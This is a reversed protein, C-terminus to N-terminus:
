QLEEMSNIQRYSLSTRESNEVRVRDAIEFLTRSHVIFDRGYKKVIAYTPVGNLIDELADTLNDQCIADDTIFDAPNSCKRENADYQFKDPDYKHILYEFYAGVDSCNVVHTNILEGNDNLCAFWRKVASHTFPRYLRLIIHYHPEKRGSSTNELEAPSFKDHYIYAWARINDAHMLIANEIVRLPAYSICVVNRSQSTRSAM